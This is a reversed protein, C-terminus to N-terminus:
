AVSVKARRRCNASRLAGGVLAFGAIMMAWSAPEPVAPTLTSFRVSALNLTGNVAGSSFGSADRDVLLFNANTIDGPLFTYNVAESFASTAFINNVLSGFSIALLRENANGFLVREHVQTSLSDAGGFINDRKQLVGIFRNIDGFQQTVGNITLSANVPSLSTGPFIPPPPGGDPLGPGGALTTFEPNSSYRAGVTADDATYQAVFSLGALSANGNGFFFGSDGLSTAVTGTYTVVYTTAFAPSNTITALALVAILRSKNV